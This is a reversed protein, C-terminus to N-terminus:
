KIIVIIILHIALIDERDGLSLHTLQFNVVDLVCEQCFIYLLCKFLWIHEVGTPLEADDHDFSPAAHRFSFDVKLGDHIRGIARM